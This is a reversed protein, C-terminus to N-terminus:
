DHNERYDRIAEEIEAKTGIIVRGDIVTRFQASSSNQNNM